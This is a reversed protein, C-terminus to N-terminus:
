IALSTGILVGNYGATKLVDIDAQSKIGSLSWKTHTIVSALDLSVQLNTELTELNRNNVGVIINNFNPLLDKILNYELVNNIELLVQLDLRQALELFEIIETRQLIKVIVLIMNAGINKAQIIQSVDIVFDKQLLPKLTLEKVQQFLDVSGGFYKHDTLVSIGTAGFDDFQTLIHPLDLEKRLVVASPSKPKIECIIQFQNALAIQTRVGTLETAMGQYPFKKQLDLGQVELQNYGEVGFRRDDQPYRFIGEKIARSNSNKIGFNSDRVSFNDDQVQKLIKDPNVAFELDKVELKKNEVIQSM